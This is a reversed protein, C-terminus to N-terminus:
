PELGGALDVQQGPDAACQRSAHTADIHRLGLGAAEAVGHQARLGDDPVFREAHDKGVVQDQVTVARQPSRKALHRFGRAIIAGAHQGDLFHRM